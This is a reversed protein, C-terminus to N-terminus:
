AGGRWLLLLFPLLVAGQALPALTGPAFYTGMGWRSGGFWWLGLLDGLGTEFVRGHYWDFSHVQRLQELFSPIWPAFALAIGAACVTWGRLHGREWVAVWVGHAALVLLGLYHTYVVLASAIAYLSWRRAGGQEVSSLLAITSALCLAGLLSYMRAEQAAML